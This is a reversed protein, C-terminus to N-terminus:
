QLVEDGAVQGHVSGGARRGHDSRIVADDVKVVGAAVARDVVEKAMWTGGRAVGDGVVLVDRRRTM